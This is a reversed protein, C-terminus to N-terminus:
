APPTINYKTFFEQRAQEFIEPSLLDAFHEYIPPLWQSGLDPHLDNLTTQARLLVGFAEPLQNAKIHTLALHASSQLYGFPDVVYLSLALAREALLRADELANRQLWASSAGLLARIEIDPANLDRAADAIAQLASDTSPKPSGHLISRVLHVTHLTQISRPHPQLRPDSIYTTLLEQSEATRELQDLLQIQSLLHRLASDPDNNSLAANTADRLTQLLAEPNFTNQEVDQAFREEAFLQQLRASHLHPKTPLASAVDRADNPRDLMRLFQALRMRASSEDDARGARAFCAIARRLAQIAEDNAAALMCAGSLKVWALGQAADDGQRRSHAIHSLARDILLEISNNQSM